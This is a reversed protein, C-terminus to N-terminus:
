NESSQAVPIQRNERTDQPLLVGNQYGASKASFLVAEARVLEFFYGRARTGTVAPGDIESETVM